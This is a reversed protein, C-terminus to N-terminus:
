SKEVKLNNPDVEEYAGVVICLDYEGFNVEEFEKIIGYPVDYEALIANM